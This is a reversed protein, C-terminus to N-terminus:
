FDGLSRRFTWDVSEMVFLDWPTKIDRNIASFPFTIAYCTFGGVTTVLGLPRLLLVDFSGAAVNGVTVYWPASPAAPEVSEPEAAASAALVTLSATVVFARRLSAFSL